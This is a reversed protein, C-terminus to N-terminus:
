LRDICVQGDKIVMAISNENELITIDSLPDGNVVVMDAIKEEEITGLGPQDLLEGATKTAAVIAQMPTMGYHVLLSLERANQGHPLVPAGVDSGAAIKVGASLAKQFSEVHQHCKETAVKILDAPMGFQEGDYANAHFVSMTPVLFTGKEIMLEIIEDTLDSGHEVSDVGAKVIALTGKAYVAHACVRKGRSHAEHVIVAIEEDTYEQTISKDGYTGTAFFKIWDSGNKVLSRVKRRIEDPGDVTRKAIDSRNLWDPIYDSTGGTASFNDGSAFVRPGMLLGSNITKRLSIGLNGVCGLDRLSTYGMGLAELARAYGRLGIETMPMDLHVPVRMPGMAMSDDPGMRLHVHTDILGPILTKGALDIIQHQSEDMELDGPVIKQIKNGSIVVNSTGVPKNGSGDILRVGALVLPKAIDQKNM